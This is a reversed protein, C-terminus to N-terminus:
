IIQLRAQSIMTLAEVGNNIIKRVWKIEYILIDMSNKVKQQPWEQLSRALKRNISTARVPTLKVKYM